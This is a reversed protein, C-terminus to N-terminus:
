EEIFNFETIYSTITPTFTSDIDITFGKSVGNVVMYKENISGDFVWEKNDQNDIPTGETNLQFLHVKVIVYAGSVAEIDSFDIGISPFTMQNTENLQIGKNAYGVQKGKKNFAYMEASMRWSSDPSYFHIGFSIRGNLPQMYFPRLQATESVEVTRRESIFDVVPNRYNRISDLALLSSTELASSPIWQAIVSQHTEPIAANYDAYFETKGVPVNILLEEESLYEYRGAKEKGQKAFVEINNKSIMVDDTKMNSSKDLHSQSMFFKTSLEVVPGISQQEDDFSTNDTACSVIGLSIALWLIFNLLHRRM